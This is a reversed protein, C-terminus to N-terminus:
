SGKCEFFYCIDDGRNSDNWSQFRGDPGASCVSVAYKGVADNCEITATGSPLQSGVPGDLDYCNGWPDPGVTVNTTGPAFMNRSNINAGVVGVNGGGNVCENNVKFIINNGVNNIISPYIGQAYYVSWIDKALSEVSAKAAAIKAKKRATTVNLLIASSLIGIIAIVILLEILTFGKSNNILKIQKYQAMM